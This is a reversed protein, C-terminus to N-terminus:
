SKFTQIRETLKLTADPINGAQFAALNDGRSASLLHNASQLHVM